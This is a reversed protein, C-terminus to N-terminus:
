EMTHSINNRVSCSILESSKLIDHPVFINVGTKSIRRHKRKPEELNSPSSEDADDSSSSSTSELCQVSDQDPSSSDKQSLECHHRKQRKKAAANSKKDRGSYSAVRDTMMSKMFDIDTEIAEQEPKTKYKMDARLDDLVSNKYFKMTTDLESMFENIKPNELTRRNESYKMLRNFEEYHETIIKGLNNRGSKTPINARQYHYEVNDITTSLASERGNAKLNSLFCLLVQRKNPLKSGTINLNEPSPITGLLM